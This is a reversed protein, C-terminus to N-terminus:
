PTPKKSAKKTSCILTNGQLSGTFSPIVFSNFFAWGNMAEMETTRLSMRKNKGGAVLSDALSPLKSDTWELNCWKHGAQTSILMEQPFHAELWLSAEQLARPESGSSCVDKHLSFHIVFFYNQRHFGRFVLFTLKTIPLYSLFALSTLTLFLFWAALVNPVILFYCDTVLHM